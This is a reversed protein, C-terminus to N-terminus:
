NETSDLTLIKLLDKASSEWSYQNLVLDKYQLIDARKFRNSYIEEIVRAIDSPDQPNFYLAAKGTIEEMVTGRSTLVISDLSLAELVPLGFGEYLSPYIFAKCTLYNKKLDPDTCYGVFYIHEGAPSHSCYRLFNKNKWGPPGIIVLPITFGKSFLIELAKILNILNKRPETNGVFLLFERRNKENYDDPLNWSPKGNPIAFVKGSTIIKSYNASLDNKIFNSVTIIRFSKKISKKFLISNIIKVSWQSTKPFHLAVCDHVTTIIKINKMFLVPCIQEPAWFVTVKHKKLLLPLIFQQWLIGPLFFPISIKKWLPNIIKYGSARCEFLFFENKHDIHQLCDLLERLYRAIGTSNNSLAKIDIGIRM